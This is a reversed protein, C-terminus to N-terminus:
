LLEIRIGDNMITAKKSVRQGRHVRGERAPDTFFEWPIPLVNFSSHWWSDKCSKEFGDDDINGERYVLRGNRKDLVAIM